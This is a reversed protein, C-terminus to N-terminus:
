PRFYRTRPKAGPRDFVLTTVSALDCSGRVYIWPTVRALHAGRFVELGREIAVKAWHIPAQHSVLIASGDEDTLRLVADQIAGHMREAVVAPAESKRRETADFYRRAWALPALARPLGDRWSEAEILREDVVPEPADVVGHIIEATERARELPSTAVHLVRGGFARLYAATEMAQARGSESLRFGPLRGYFLAKPNEVEGHRVLHVFFAL